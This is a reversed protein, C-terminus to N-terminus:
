VTSCELQLPCMNMVKIDTQTRVLAGCRL